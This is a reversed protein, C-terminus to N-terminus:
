RTALCWASCPSPAIPERDSEGCVSPIVFTSAFLGKVFFRLCRRLTDWRAAVRDAVRGGGGAAAVPTVSHSLARLRRERAKAM